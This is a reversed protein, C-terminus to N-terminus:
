KLSIIKSNNNKGYKTFDEFLSKGFKFGLIKTAKYDLYFDKRKLVLDIITETNGNNFKFYNIDKKKKQNYKVDPFFLSLQPNNIKIYEFIENKNAETLDEKLKLTMSFFQLKLNEAFNTMNFNMKSFDMCKCNEIDLNNLQSNYLEYKTSNKISLNCNGFPIEQSTRIKTKNSFNSTDYNLLFNLKKDLFSEFTYDSKRLCFGIHFDPVESTDLSISPYNKKLVEINTYNGSMYINLSDSFHYIAYTFFILSVIGGWTSVYGKHSKVKFSHSEGFSDFSKFFSSIRSVLLEVSM